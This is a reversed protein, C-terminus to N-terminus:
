HAAPAENACTEQTCYVLSDKCLCANCGDTSQFSSGDAYRAGDYSCLGSPSVGTAPPMADLIIVPAAADLFQTGNGVPFITLAADQSNTPASADDYLVLSADLYPSAPRTATAQGQGNQTPGGEASYLAVDCPLDCVVSGNSCVCTVGCDPSPVPVAVGNAYVVGGFTCTGGNDGGGIALPGSSCASVALAVLFATAFPRVRRKTKM